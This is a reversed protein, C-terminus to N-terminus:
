LKAICVLDQGIELENELKGSIELVEDLKSDNKLLKEIEPIMWLQSTVSKTDIVNFGAEVFEKVLENPKHFYWQTSNTRIGTVIEDLVMTKYDSNMIAGSRVGYFYGAFRNIAFGLIKGNPNLLKKLNNLMSIRSKKDIIHYLPGHLIIVDFKKNTSFNLADGLFIEDLKNDRISNKQKVIEIHRPTIDLISTKYGNDALFFSYVGDAGGIDLVSQGHQINDMLIKKTRLEQIIGFPDKHRDEEKYMSTYYEKATKSMELEKYFLFAEWTPLM